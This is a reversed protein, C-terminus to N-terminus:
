HARRILKVVIFVGVMAIVLAVLKPGVASVNGSPDWAAVNASIPDLTEAFAPSAVLAAGAATAAAALKNTIRM